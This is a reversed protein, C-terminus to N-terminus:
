AHGNLGGKAFALYLTEYFKQAMGSDYAFADPSYTRQIEGNLFSAKAVPFASTNSLLIEAHAAMRKKSCKTSFPCTYCNSDLKTLSM